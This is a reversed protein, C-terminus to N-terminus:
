AAWRLPCQGRFFKMQAEPLGDKVGQVILRHQAEIDAESMPTWRSVEASPIAIQCLREFYHMYDPTFGVQAWHRYAFQPMGGYSVPAVRKPSSLECFAMGDPPQVMYEAGPPIYECPLMDMTSTFAVAADMCLEPCLWVINQPASAMHIADKGIWTAQHSNPYNGPELGNMVTRGTRPHMHKLIIEGIALPPIALVNTGAQRWNEIDPGAAEVDVSCGQQIIAAHKGGLRALNGFYGDSYLHDLMYMHLGMNHHGAELALLNQVSSLIGYKDDATVSLAQMLEVPIERFVTHIGVQRLTRTAKWLTPVDALLSYFVITAKGALAEVNKDTMLTPLSYRIMRDIYEDGWVPCGMLLGGASTPLQQNIIMYQQTFWACLLPAIGEMRKRQIDYSEILVDIENTM